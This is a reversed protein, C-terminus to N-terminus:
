LEVDQLLPLGPDHSASLRFAATRAFRLTL